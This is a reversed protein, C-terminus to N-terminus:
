WKQKNIKIKHPNRGSKNILKLKIHPNKKVVKHYIYSKEWKM